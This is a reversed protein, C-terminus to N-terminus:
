CENNILLARMEERSKICDFGWYKSALLRKDVQAQSSDKEFTEWLDRWLPNVEELTQVPNIVLHPKGLYVCYGTHTGISNSCTYDSLLIITKLRNLFNIDLQHGATTVKFGAKNYLDGFGNKNEDLYYMNVIVTDFGLKEKLELLEDIMCHIEYELGGECCTHTPFFLLTKGLEKKLSNMEESNLMCEAYHIYPGIAIVPKHLSGLGKVRINSFTMIRKTTKCWAAMPVYDDVYLGHEISWGFKNVGSYQKM